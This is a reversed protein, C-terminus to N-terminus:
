PRKGMAVDFAAELRPNIGRCGLVVKSAWDFYERLREPTWDASPTANIDRLNCIKDAMKVLKPGPSRSTWWAAMQGM